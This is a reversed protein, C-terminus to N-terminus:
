SHLVHASADLVGFARRLPILYFVEAEALLSDGVPDAHLTGTGKSDRRIEWSRQKVVGTHDFATVHLSEGVVPFSRVPREDKAYTRRKWSEGIWVAGFANTEIARIATSRWFIFKDAQDEPLTSCQFVLNWNNDFLFLMPVHNGYHEFTAKAISSYVDLATSLSNPKGLGDGVKDLAEAVESPPQWKRDIKLLESNLRYEGLGRLKVYTIQGIIQDPPAADAIARASALEQDGMHLELDVCVAYHQAYVYKIANLLEMDPLTRTVWRREVKVLASDSIASPLKKQAMRVLRKLNASVLEERGCELSVDNEELYSYILSARMTSYLELDGQKEITNRSDKAWVMLLDDKWPNQVNKIYWDEFDPIDTKNSQILFTVTRATQLFQNINRRFLEPDFYSKQCSNLLHNLDNLRRNWPRM